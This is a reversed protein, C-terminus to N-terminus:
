PNEKEASNELVEKASKVDGAEAFTAAVMSDDFKKFANKITQVIKDVGLDELQKIMQKLNEISTLSEMTAISVAEKLPHAALMEYTDELEDAAFQATVIIYDDVRQKSDKLEQRALLFNKMTTATLFMLDKVEKVEFGEVFRRYAILKAYSPIMTRDRNRVSATILHYHMTIYWKLLEQDMKQYNPFRHDNGPRMVEETIKVILSERLEILIDYIITSKRYAVRKHFTENRFAWDQPYSIIKETLFLLRRLIHYRPRPKWGLAHYTASADVSLKKDIYEAMWPKELIEKGSLRGLFSMTILGLAALPKPM